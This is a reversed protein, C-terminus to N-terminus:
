FKVSSLKVSHCVSHFIYISRELFNSLLQIKCRTYSIGFSSLGCLLKPVCSSWKINGAEQNVAISYYRYVIKPNLQSLREEHYWCAAHKLVDWINLFSWKMYLFLWASGDFELMNSSRELQKMILDFSGQSTRKNQHKKWCAGGFYNCPNLSLFKITYKGSLCAWLWTYCGGYM